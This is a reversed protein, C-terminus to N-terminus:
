AEPFLGETSIGFNTSGSCGDLGDSSTSAGYNSCEAVSTLDETSITPDTGDDSLAMLCGSITTGSSFLGSGKYRAAWNGGKFGLHGRSTMAARLAKFMAQNYSTLPWNSSFPSGSCVAKLSGSHMVRLIKRSLYKSVLKSSLHRKTLMPIKVTSMLSM